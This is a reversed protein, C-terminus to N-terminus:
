AAQYRSQKLSRDHPGIKIEHRVVQSALYNEPALVYAAPLPGMQCAM